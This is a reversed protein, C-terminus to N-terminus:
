IVDDGHYYEEAVRIMKAVKKSDFVDDTRAGTELDIWFPRPDARGCLEDLVARINKETIGGAFGTFQETDAVPWEKPSVGRGRSCDHLFNINPALGAKLRDRTKTNPIPLIIEADDRVSCAFSNIEPVSIKSEPFGNLQLRDFVANLPPGGFYDGFKTFPSKYPDIIGDSLRGCLHASFTGACGCESFKEMFEAMWNPSPYRPTGRRKHSLLVGFEVWPYTSSIEEVWRLNVVDDIGTVTLNTFKM